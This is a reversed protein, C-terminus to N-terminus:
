WRFELGVNLGQAWFLDEAFPVAPRPSIATRGPAQALNVGTDVQDGARIPNNWVLLSYGGFLALHDTLRFGLNAGVEYVADLVTRRFTGTNSPQVYLGWPLVTRQYPTQFVRDGRAMVQQSNGGLAATGRWDLFWRGRVHQGRLGIQGGWFFNHVQFQDEEGLLLTETPEIRATATLDLRDRMQLFRAGALLDLRDRPGALLALVANAEQGFLEVRSYGVYGGNLLGWPSPGAVPQALPQGGPVAVFPQALVTDGTSTAKFYTSDRELFFARGELGVTRAADLWGEATLRVGVFRDAHRTELRGDGYIVQQPGGPPGATLLAPVRGERL